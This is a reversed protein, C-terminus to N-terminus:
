SLQGYPADAPPLTVHLIQPPWTRQRQAAYVFYATHPAERCWKCSKLAKVGKRKGNTTGHLWKAEGKLTRRKLSPEQAKRPNHVLMRKGKFPLVLWPLTRHKEWISKWGRAPHLEPVYSFSTREKDTIGTLRIKGGGTPKDMQNKAETVRAAVLCTAIPCLENLTLFMNPKESRNQPWKLPQGQARWNSSHVMMEM